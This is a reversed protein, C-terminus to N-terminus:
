MIARYTCTLSGRSSSSTPMTSLLNPKRRVPVRFFVDKKGPRKMLCTQGDRLVWKEAGPVIKHQPIHFNSELSNLRGSPMALWPADPDPVAWLEFDFPSNVAEKTTTNVFDMCYENVYPNGPWLRISFKSEPIPCTHVIDRNPRPKRGTQGVINNLSQTASAFVADQSSCLQTDIRLQDDVWARLEATTGERKRSGLMMLEYDNRPSM